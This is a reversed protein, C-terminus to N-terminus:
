KLVLKEKLFSKLAKGEKDAITDVIDQIEALGVEPQLKIHQMCRRIEITFKQVLM